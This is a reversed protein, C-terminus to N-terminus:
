CSCIVRVTLFFFSCSSWTSIKCYKKKRRSQSPYSIMIIINGLGSRSIQCDDMCTCHGWQPQNLKVPRALCKDANDKTWICTIKQDGQGKIEQIICVLCCNECSKALFISIYIISNIYIKYILLGRRGHLKQM